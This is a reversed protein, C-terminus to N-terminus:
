WAYASALQTSHTALATYSEQKRSWYGYAGVRNQLKPACVGAGLAPFNKLRPGGGGGGGFNANHGGIGPCLPPMGCHFFRFQSFLL